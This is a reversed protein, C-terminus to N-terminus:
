CKKKNTFEKSKAVFLFWRLEHFPDQHFIATLPVEFYHVLTSLNRPVIESIAMNLCYSAASQCFNTPDKLFFKSEDRVQLWIQSNGRTQYLWLLAFKPLSFFGAIYIEHLYSYHSHISVYHNNSFM